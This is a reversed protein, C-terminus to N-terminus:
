TAPLEKDKLLDHDNRMPTPEILRIFIPKSEEAKMLIVEHNQLIAESNEVTYGFNTKESIQMQVHDTAIFFTWMVIMITLTNMSGKSQHISM